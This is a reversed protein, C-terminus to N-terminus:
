ICILQQRMLNWQRTDHKASHVFISWRSIKKNATRSNSLVYIKTQASITTIKEETTCNIKVKEKSPM